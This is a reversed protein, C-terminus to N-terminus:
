WKDAQNRVARLWEAGITKAEIRKILEQFSASPRSTQRPRRSDRRHAESALQTTNESIFINREINMVYIFSQVNKLFILL